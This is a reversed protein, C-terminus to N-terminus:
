EYVKSGIMVIKGIYLTSKGLMDYVVIRYTFVSNIDLQQGKYRGDWGIEFVTSSFINEGWRDYIDMRYDNPDYGTGYPRFVDNVADGNPTFANPIYINIGDVVTVTHYVSDKCGFVDVVYLYVDYLMASTYSHSPSFDTSTAGDGFSWQYDDGGVSQNIFSISTNSNVSSPSPQFAATPGPMDIITVSLTDACTGNSAVVQYTGAKLGNLSNGSIHPSMLWTYTIIGSVNPVTVTVSGVGQQCHDNELDTVVVNIPPASTITISSTSTCGNLGTVTVTYVGPTTFSNAATNVSVGGSWLYTGGGTATVDVKTTVCDIITGGSNNTIGVTPLTINQTITISSTSTCGNSGTVTVSYTGPSTFSNNATGTTAGGSWLYSTAGAPTATVSISTLTCTLETAGTNNTIGVVPPTNNQTIM